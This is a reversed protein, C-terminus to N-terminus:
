RFAAAVDVVRVAAEGANDGGAFFLRKSDPSWVENSIDGYTAVKRGRGSGLERIFLVRQPGALFAQTKSYVVYALYRGDPSARVNAIVAIGGPMGPVEVVVQEAAGTARYIARHHAQDLQFPSNVYYVAQVAGDRFVTSVDDSLLDWSKGMFDISTVPPCDSCTGPTDPRAVIQMGPTLSDLAVQIGRFYPQLYFLNGNWGPPRFRQEILELGAEMQWDRDEQRFGLASEPISEIGHHATQGTKLNLTTIRFLYGSHPPEKLVQPKPLTWETFALWREDPSVSISFESVSVQETGRIPHVVANTSGGSCNAGCSLLVATVWCRWYLLAKLRRRPNM